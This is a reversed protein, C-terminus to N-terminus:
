SSVSRNKRLFKIVIGCGLLSLPLIISFILTLIKGNKESIAIQNYEYQKVPIQIGTTKNTMLALANQFIQYNNGNVATDVDNMLFYDSSIVVVNSIADELQKKVYVGCVFPGPEGMANEFSVDTLLKSTMSSQLFIEYTLDSRGYDLTLGKAFPMYVYKSRNETYIGQTLSTNLIEPLLYYEYTNYYESDSELILGEEVQIGYATLLSNFQLPETDGTYSTLFFANGGQELYKEIKIVEDLSYDSLPGLLLLVDCDAPIEAYKLLHITEYNYNAKQLQTVLNTEPELEDHGTVFYLKSRKEMTVYEIASCLMGEGDYGSIAYNSAEYQGTTENYTYSCEVQYCDYYGVVKSVDGSVVIFSNDAPNTETYKEYFIPNKSPSVTEVTVRESYDAAEKVTNWLTEDKANEEALYYIQIDQNLQSLYQKTEKSLTYLENRTADRIMVADPIYYSGVNVAIMVLLFSASGLYQVFATKFGNTKVNWHRKDIVFRTFYLCTAAFTAYYLFDRLNVRGHLFGDLGSTFDFASLIKTVLNGQPSILDCIGQIMLGLLLAFFSIVAATVINDTLSSIFICLSIAAMGFFLYGLVSLINEKIPVPGYIRLICPYLFVVVMILAYTIVYAFFKGLVVSELSIPATYLLQDTKKGQEEAFSRMTLIPFTILLVLLCGNLIYSVYPYGALLGYARFYWGSFFLNVALYIWGTLSSFLTKLEKEVIAGM